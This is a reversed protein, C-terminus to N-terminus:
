KLEQPYNQTNGMVSQPYTMQQQRAMFIVIANYNILELLAKKQDRLSSKPQAFNTQSWSQRVTAEKSPTDSKSKPSIDPKGLCKAPLISVM